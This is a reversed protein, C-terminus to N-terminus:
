ELGALGPEIARARLLAEEAEASRGLLRLSRGRYLWAEAFNTRLVLARELEALAEAHRELGFLVRGLNYLAEPRPNPAQTAKRLDTLAAEMRGSAAAALGRWELALPHEPSSALIAALTKGAGAFDRRELQAEALAFLADAHPSQQEGLLREAYAVAAAVPSAQVVALARYLDGEAGQPARAPDDLRVGVLVPEKEARPALLDGAAPLQIKHDTMVVHVVDETRRKPMHCAVCDGTDSAGGHTGIAVGSRHCGTGPQAGPAHCRQCAARFHAARAAEPVKRHPDHCDLCFLKAGAEGCRSQRLRYPHHNIEFRAAADRGEEDADVQVLYDALAEGPRFSWDGRGFRRVGPLAVAPQLHCQLCVDQRRDAALRAPNVITAAIGTADHAGATAAAVHAAGPGHCRQCGTGEPLEAPFFQPAARADSGTPAELYANHCFVCERRVRRRVGQHDPRDFGPAMGFRREATYWAVPLQFLEGGPERYLYLRAHNGSGLVWDVQREFVPGPRGESDLVVRRFWLRGDRRTMEFRQRSAEHVFTGRGWDEIDTEPRPRFWSRAMGVEAYSAALDGHCNACVADALYGPAAGQTARLGFRRLQSDIASVNPPATPETQGPVAVVLWGCFGFLGVTAVRGSRM